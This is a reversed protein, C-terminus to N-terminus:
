EYHNIAILGSGRFYVSRGRYRLRTTGRQPDSIPRTQRSLMPLKPALSSQARFCRAAIWASHEIFVSFIWHAFFKKADLIAPQLIEDSGNQNNLSQKHLLLYENM